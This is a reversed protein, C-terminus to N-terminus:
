KEEKSFKLSKMYQCFFFTNQSAIDYMDDEESDMLINILDAYETIRNERIFSTVKRKLAKQQSVSLLNCSNPTPYPSIRLFGSCCAFFAPAAPPMQHPM